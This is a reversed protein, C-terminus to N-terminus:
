KPDRLIDPCRADAIELKRMQVKAEEVRSKAKAEEV